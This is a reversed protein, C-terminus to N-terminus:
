ENRVEYADIEWDPSEIIKANENPQDAWGDLHSLRAQNIVLNYGIHEAIEQPTNLDYLHLRWEDDVVDIVHEDLEIVATGEFHVEFIRKM